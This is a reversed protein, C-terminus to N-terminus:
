VKSEVVRYARTKSNSTALSDIQAKGDGREHRSGTICSWKKIRMRANYVMCAIIVALTVDCMTSSHRAARYRAQHVLRYTRKPLLDDTTDSVVSTSVSPNFRTVGSRVGGRFPHSETWPRGRTVALRPHLYSLCIVIAQESIEHRCAVAPAM